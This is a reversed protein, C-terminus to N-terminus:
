SGLFSVLSVPGPAGPFQPQSPSPILRVAGSSLASTSNRTAQPARVRSPVVFAPGVSDAGKHLIRSGSGLLKPRPLAHSEPGAGQLAVQLRLVTSPSLVCVTLPPRVWHPRFVALAGWVRWHYKNATGRGGWLMVSCAFRFLLGGGGM